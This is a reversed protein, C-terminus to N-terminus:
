GQAATGALQDDVTRPVMDFTVTTDTVEPNYIARIAEAHEPGALRLEMPAPPYRGASAGARPRIATRCPARTTLAASAEAARPTRTGAPLRPRTGFPGPA